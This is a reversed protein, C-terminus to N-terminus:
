YDLHSAVAVRKRSKWWYPQQAAGMKGRLVKWSNKFRHKFEDISRLLFSLTHHIKHLIKKQKNTKKIDDSDITVCCNILAFTLMKFAFQM